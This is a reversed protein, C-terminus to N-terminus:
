LSLQIKSWKSYRPRGFRRTPRIRLQLKIRQTSSSTDRITPISFVLCDEVNRSRSGKGRELFFCLSHEMEFVQDAGMLDSPEEVETKNGIQFGLCNEAARRGGAATDQCSGLRVVSRTPNIRSASSATFHHNSFAM